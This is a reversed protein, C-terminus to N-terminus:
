PNLWGPRNAQINMRMDNSQMPSFVSKCCDITYGMFNNIPDFGPQGTCSDIEEDSCFYNPEKEYPTDPVNDGPPTCGAFSM